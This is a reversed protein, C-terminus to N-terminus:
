LHIRYKSLWCQVGNYYTWLDFIVVDTSVL